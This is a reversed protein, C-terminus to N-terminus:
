YHRTLAPTATVVNGTADAELFYSHAVTMATVDGGVMVNVRYHQGWLPRVQVERLNEPQGLTGLVQVRIRARLSDPTLGEPETRSGEPPRNPM